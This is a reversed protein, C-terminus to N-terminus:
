FLLSIPSRFGDSGVRQQVSVKGKLILLCWLSPVFPNTFGTDPSSRSDLTYKWVSLYSLLLFVICYFCLLKGSSPIYHTERYLENTKREKKSNTHSETKSMYWAPRWNGTREWGGLYQSSLCHTSQGALLTWPGKENLLCFHFGCHSSNPVSSSNFATFDSLVLHPCACLM